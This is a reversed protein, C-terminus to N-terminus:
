HLKLEVKQNSKNKTPCYHSFHVSPLLLFNLVTVMFILLQMNTNKKIIDALLNRLLTNM